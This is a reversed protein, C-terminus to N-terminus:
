DDNKEDWTYLAMGSTMGGGISAMLIRDGPKFTQSNKALTLPICAAATNGYEPATLMFRAFDAGVTLAYEELLRVNAQHFVFWDIDGITIGARDLCGKTMGSLQEVAFNRVARGDMKFFQDGRELSALSTPLRSGGAPVTVLHHLDAHTETQIEQLGRSSDSRGLLVAGAGDGFLSVTKRDTRDMIRSFTDAGILLISAGEPMKSLLSDALSMGFLFGSCVASIDFSMSRDIGLNSQVISATAPQPVDPTSTALILGAISSRDVGSNKVAQEAANTALDSTATDADAYRRSLIGTRAEIWDEDVGTWQAIRQNSIETEPVYSGMGLITSRM